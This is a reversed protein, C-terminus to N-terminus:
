NKHNYILEQYLDIYNNIMKEKSYNHTVHKICADKYYEKGNMRIKRLADCIEAFNDMNVILHTYSVPIDVAMVEHRQALLIANSLGVYGTGAVAIKM